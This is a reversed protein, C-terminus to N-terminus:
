GLISKLIMDKVVDPKARGKSEKMVQGMLFGAAATKGNKIKEVVAQNAALVDEVITQLAGEDSIQTAGSAAVISQATKGTEIMQKLVDKAIKGSIKGQEKLSLLSLLEEPSVKTNGFDDSTEKLFSNFDGVIWKATEKATLSLKTAVLLTNAKEFYTNMAMDGIIVKVEFDSLGLESSYRERKALPLEPMAQREEDIQADSLVLPILDPEPFYRYDHADAKGRLSHTTQTADDFHRTEQSITGGDLLILKQRKIEYQIAREVSRFSNLNKVEARTGFEKQGVPRLSVNADCRLSGEELNGDCVGIYMVIEHLMEMYEKAEAATRFDPDSVIEILPVSARNLDVLSGTSGSVGEAGQHVLKGADEEIHIRTIGIRKKNQILDMHGGLCIPYEFQTIQYNKPMDPYFYNKRSFVSRNQIDCNIALGTRVAMKAVMENLVPLAGPMGLCTPCVNTNPQKGFENPCACFAKSKTKLQVHVELGIVSEFEM